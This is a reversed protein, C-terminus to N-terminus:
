AGTIRGRLSTPLLCDLEQDSIDSKKDVGLAEGALVVAKDTTNPMNEYLNNLRGMIETFSDDLKEIEKDMIRIQAILQYLDNKIILVQVAATKNKLSLERFDFSKSYIATFVSGFSCLATAIKLIFIDQIIIGVIGCVTLSTIIISAVELKKYRKAYIDAQKEQIKHTWIVNKLQHRVLDLLIQYKERDKM